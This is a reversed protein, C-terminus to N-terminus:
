ERQVHPQHRKKLRSVLLQVTLFSWLVARPLLPSYASPLEDASACAPFCDHSVQMNVADAITFILLATVKDSSTLPLHSLILLLAQAPHFWNRLTVRFLHTQLQSNLFNCSTNSGLFVNKSIKVTPAEWNLNYTLPLCIMETFPGIAFTKPKTTWQDRNRSSLDAM